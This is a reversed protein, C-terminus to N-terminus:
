PAPLRGLTALRAPGMWLVGDQVSLPVSLTSAGKGDARAFLSLVMKIGPASKAPLLGAADLRDILADTGQIHTSFAALPQMQRDFAVTGEAELGVPPWSVALHSLDVTGGDQSWNALAEAPTGAPWAGLIRGALDIGAIRRDLAPSPAVPLDLAKVSAEFTLIPARDGGPGPAPPIPTLAIDLGQAALGSPPLAINEAHLSLEAVTGGPGMALDAGFHTSDIDVSWQGLSVTQRGQVSLHVRHPSFLSGRASVAEARWGVGSASVLVPRDLRATFAFPFGGMTPAGYQVQWGADRHRTAWDDLSKRFRDAAHFWYLSYGAAILGLAAAALVLRRRISM